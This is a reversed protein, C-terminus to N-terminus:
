QGSGRMVPDGVASAAPSIRRALEARAAQLETRLNQIETQHSQDLAECHLQWAAQEDTLRRQEAETFRNAQGLAGHSGELQQAATALEERLLKTQLEASASM